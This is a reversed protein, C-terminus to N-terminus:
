GNNFFDARQFAYSYLLRMQKGYVNLSAFAFGDSSSGYYFFNLILFLAKEPGMKKVLLNRTKYIEKEFGWFSAV